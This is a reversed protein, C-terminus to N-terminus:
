RPVEWVFDSRAGGDSLIRGPFIEIRTGRIVGLSFIARAPASLTGRLVAGAKAPFVEATEARLEVPGDDISGPPVGANELLVRVTGSMWARRLGFGDGERASLLLEAADSRGSIGRGRAAVPGRLRLVPAPGSLGGIEMGGDATVRWPGSAIGSVIVTVDRVIECRDESLRLLLGRGEFDIRLTEGAPGTERRAGPRRRGAGGPKGTLEGKVPRDTRLEGAKGDWEVSPARLEATAARGYWRVIVRGDLFVRDDKEMRGSDASAELLVRGARDYRVLRVKVLEAREGRAEAREASVRLALRGTERDFRLFEISVATIEIPGSAAAPGSAARM